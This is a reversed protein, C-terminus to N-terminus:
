GETRRQAEEHAQMGKRILECAEEAEAWRVFEVWKRDDNATGAAGAADTLGEDGPPSDGACARLRRLM